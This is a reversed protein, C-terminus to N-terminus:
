KDKRKQAELAYKVAQKVRTDDKDTPDCIFRVGKSTLEWYGSTKLSYGEKLLSYYKLWEYALMRIEYDDPFTNQEQALLAAITNQAIAKLALDRAQKVSEVSPNRKLRFVMRAAGAEAIAELPFDVHQGKGRGLHDRKPEPLLGAKVYRRLTIVSIDVGRNKLEEQLEDYTM